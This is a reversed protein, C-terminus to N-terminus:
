DPHVLAPGALRAEHGLALLRVRHLDQGAHEVADGGARRDGKVDVIDVLAAAVVGLDLVTEPRGMGVIGIELFVAHAVIAAAAALRRALRRHPDRGASDRALDQPVAHFHAAGHDLEAGLLDVAAFPIPIRGAVIGEPTGVPLRPLGPFAIEVVHALAARGAARDDRDHGRANGHTEAIRDVVLEVGIEGLAQHADIGHLADLDAVAERDGGHAALLIGVLHAHLVALRHEEAVM